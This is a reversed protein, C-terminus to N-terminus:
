LNGVIFVAVTMAAVLLILAVTGARSPLGTGTRPRRRFRRTVRKPPYPPLPVPRRHTPETAYEIMTTEDRSSAWEVNAM